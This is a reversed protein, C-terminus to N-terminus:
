SQKSPPLIKYKLIPLITVENKVIHFNEGIKIITVSSGTRITDLFGLDRVQTTDIIMGGPIQELSVDIGPVPDGM